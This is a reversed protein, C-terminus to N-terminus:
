RMGLLEHTVSGRTVSGLFDWGCCLVVGITHVHLSMYESFSNVLFELVFETLCCVDKTSTFVRQTLGAWFAIMYLPIITARAREIARSLEVSM